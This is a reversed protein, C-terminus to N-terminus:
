RVHTSCDEMGFQSCGVHQQGICQMTCSLLQMCQVVANHLEDTTPFMGMQEQGMNHAQVHVPVHYTM